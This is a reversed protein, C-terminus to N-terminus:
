FLLCNTKKVFDKQINKVIKKNLLSQNGLKMFQVGKLTKLFMELHPPLPPGYTLQIKWLIHSSNTQFIISAM